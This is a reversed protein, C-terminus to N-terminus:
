REALVVESLRLLEGVSWAQYPCGRPTHPSEADAIESVHGLGAEDLHAFLPALFRERADRKAAATRGHVHVWAEVFPGILWPWVTGQHYAGDREWVGGEYRPVYGAENPALSRLGLPTWLKAEVDDVVRRARQGDLLPIPLGGVAFIQNPRFTADSTGAQHNPDVVDCLYGRQDDWFRAIFSNHGKVFLPKWREGGESFGGAIYLTNLWLAQIEVPKGIRPTVVWDGVKADMWTLQVGPVGAAILGDEDLRIGYRTGQAYGSLIAQVAAEICKVDSPSILGPKGAAARLFEYAAIIYWLSADVSNYEPAENGDPFRNPLMGQSVAGAWELLIARADDLRGTALCVGRLAIFTDRGWDTFWPYGAVITKGQKRGVVYGDASRHLRSPFRRRRENERDRLAEYASESSGESSLGIEASGEAAAIWVAPDTSLNWRFFGPSALDERDDLGRAGEEEYQFNRFWEPEHHYTGNSRIVIGPVGPYPRWTLVGDRETPEFNFGPNEHHMSHYDRGSLFPRVILTVGPQSATLRWSMVVSSRGHPVFIEQEIATGDELTFRWRPWPEAYFAAVRTRGDPHVVDPAYRQSTLAYRGRPTEVWADFGNVLVVRGTPPTTATLLLAHYRRARIGSTTGSAFGGLGDPEIWETKTDVRQAMSPIWKPPLVAPAPTETVHLPM